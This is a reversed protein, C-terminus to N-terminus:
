MAPATSHWRERSGVADWGFSIPELTVKGGVISLNVVLNDLPVSRGLIHEGRYRLKVDAARLKPLSIPSDPLLKPSAEARLLSRPPKIPAVGPRRDVGM